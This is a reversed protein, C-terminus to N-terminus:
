QESEQEALLARGKDTIVYDERCPAHPDMPGAREIFYHGVLALFGEWSQRDGGLGVLWCDTTGLKHALRGGSAMLRLMDLGSQPLTEGNESEAEDPEQEALLARGKYSIGYYDDGIHTLLGRQHLEGFLVHSGFIHRGDGLKRLIQMTAESLLDVSEEDSVEVREMQAYPAASRIKTPEQIPRKFTCYYVVRLGDSALYEDPESHCVLEWGDIGQKNLLVALDDQGKKLEMSATQYEWTIM